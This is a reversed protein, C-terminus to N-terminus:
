KLWKDHEEPGRAEPESMDACESAGWSRALHARDPLVHNELMKFYQM